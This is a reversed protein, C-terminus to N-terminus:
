RTSFIERSSEYVKGDSTGVYLRGNHKVFSTLQTADLLLIMETWSEFDKTLRVHWQGDQKSVLFVDGNSWSYPEWNKLWAAGPTTTSGDYIFVETVRKGEKIQTVWLGLREASLHPTVQCIGSVPILDVLQWRDDEYVLTEHPGHHDLIPQSEKGHKAVYSETNPGTSADSFAYLRGRFAVLHRMFSNQNIECSEAYELRWSAGADNSSFIMGVAPTQPAGYPFSKFM